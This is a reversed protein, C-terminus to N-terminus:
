EGNDCKGVHPCLDPTSCGSEKWIRGKISSGTQKCVIDPRANQKRELAARWEQNAQKIEDCTRKGKLTNCALCLLHVNELIAPGGPDRHDISAHRGPVRKNYIQCHSDDRDTIQLRLKQM